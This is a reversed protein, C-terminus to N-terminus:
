LLMLDQNVLMYITIVVQFCLVFLIRLLYQNNVFKHVIFGKEIYLPGWKSIQRVCMGYKCIVADEVLRAGIESPVSGLKIFSTLKSWHKDLTVPKWWDVTIKEVMWSSVVEMYTVSDQCPRLVMVRSWM